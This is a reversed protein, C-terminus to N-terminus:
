KYPDGLLNNDMEGNLNKLCALTCISRRYDRSYGTYNAGFQQFNELDLEVPQLMETVTAM